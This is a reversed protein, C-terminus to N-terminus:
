GVNAPCSRLRALSSVAMRAVKLWGRGIAPRDDILQDGLQPATVFRSPGVDRRLAFAAFAVGDSQVMAVVRGTLIDPEATEHRQWSKVIRRDLENRSPANTM